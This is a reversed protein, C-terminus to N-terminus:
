KWFCTPQPVQSSAVTGPVQIDLHTLKSLAKLAELTAVQASINKKTFLVERKVEKFKNDNISLFKLNPCDKLVELGKSLRNESIDLKTLSPLKPFLKINTLSANKLDLEELKVFDDTLGQLFKLNVLDLHHHFYPVLSM